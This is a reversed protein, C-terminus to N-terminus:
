YIPMDQLRSNIIKRSLGLKNTMDQVLETFWRQSDPSVYINQILTRISIKRKCGGNRFDMREFKNLEFDTIIARLEREHEFSKRKNLFANFVNRFDIKDKDYDLYKVTGVFVSTKTKKFSDILRQYTSQIAIGENSKVYLKWMAASEYENM